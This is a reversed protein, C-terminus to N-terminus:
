VKSRRRRMLLAGFGFAVLLARSPEPVMVIVLIGHDRFLGTDWRLMADMSLDPLDLHGNDDGNGVLFRNSGSNFGTWDSVGYWDLLNYIDGAVPLFASSGTTPQVQITGGSWTIGDSIEIHDHLTGATISTGFDGFALPTVNSGAYLNPLDNLYADYGPGGMVFNGQNLDSDTFTGSTVQLRTISGAHLTLRGDSGDGIFLTGLAGGANSTGVQTDGPALIGHVELSGRVHGSGSLTGASGVLTLGTGTSGVARTNGVNSVATFVINSGQGVVEWEGSGGRGVQLAGETVTTTGTYDNHVTLTAIGPGSKELNLAGVTLPGSDFRASPEGDRFYADWNADLSQHIKLTGATTSANEIIASSDGLPTYDTATIMGTAANIANGAKATLDATSRRTPDFTPSSFSYLGSTSNGDNTILNGITVSSGGVQLMSLNRMEVVNASSLAQNHGLRLIEIDDRDFNGTGTGTESGITLKGTFASNDGRLHVTFFQDSDNNSTGDEVNEIRVNNSGSLSGTIDFIAFQQHGVLAAELPTSDEFYFRVQDTSVSGVFTSGSGVHIDGTFHITPNRPMYGAAINVQHALDDRVIIDRNITLDINPSDISTTTNGFARNEVRLQVASNDPNENGSTEGLIIRGTQEFFVGNNTQLGVFGDRIDLDGTWTHTPRYFRLNGNGTKVLDGDGYIGGGNANLLFEGNAASGADAFGGNQVHINLTGVINLTGDLTPNRQTTGRLTVSDTATEGFQFWEALRFQGDRSGDGFRSALELIVNNKLITGDAWGDTTGFPTISANENPQGQIDVVLPDIGNGLVTLGTYTHNLGALDQTAAAATREGFQIRGAGTYTVGGSFPNGGTISAITNPASSIVNKFVLESGADAVSITANSGGVTINQTITNAASTVGAGIATFNLTGGNVSWNGSGLRAVDDFALTASGTVYTTGSYTNNGTLTTSGVGTFIVNQSGTIDGAITVPASAYQHFILDAGATTLGVGAGIVTGGAHNNTILIGGESLSLNGSTLSSTPTDFRLSATNSGASASAQVDTHVGAGFTDVGYGTFAIIKGTADTAAWDTATPTGTLSTGFTAYSGLRSNPTAGTFNITGGAVSQLHLSAGANRGILGSVYMTASGIAAIGNGGAHLTLNGFEELGTGTSADMLLLGGGMILAANVGVRRNANVAYNELNLIGGLVHVNEVSSDGASSGQLNVQGGGIKTLHSNVLSGGDVFNVKMTVKGGQAAYLRLNDDYAVTQRNSQTFLVGGTGTGFIVEGSLNEGGLISNGTTNGRGYNDMGTANQPDYTEVGVEWSSLNFTSGANALFFSLNAAGEGDASMTSRGGMKFGVMPDLPNSNAALAAADTYFNGTGNYRLIGRKLYIAGAADHAQNLQVTSENNTAVVEMRLLQNRNAATIPGTVAGSAGDSIRGRIDFIGASGTYTSFLRPDTQDIGAAVASGGYINGALTTLGTFNGYIRPTFNRQYGGTGGSADINNLIINGGFYAGEELQLVSNNTAIDHVFIDIGDMRAGYGPSFSGTGTIHIETAAGLSQDHRAYLTGQNIFVNGTNYNPATLFLGQAGTKVLNTANTISSAFWLYTNDGDTVRYANSADATNYHAWISAVNFHAEQNNFNVRGGQIASRIDANRNTDLAAGAWNQVALNATVIMGSNITLEAADDIVLTTYNGRGTAAGNIYSESQFTLSNVAQSSGLTLISNRRDTLEGAGIGTDSTVGTIKLNQDATVGQTELRISETVATNPHAVVKYESDKLPRVFHQGLVNTDVTVLRNATYDENFLNGTGAANSWNPRVGGFFGSVVPKNGDLGSGSGIMSPAVNVRVVARDNIPAGSLTPNFGADAFETGADLSRLQVSTGPQRVIEDFHWGAYDGPLRPNGGVLDAGLDFEIAVQGANQVSLTGVKEFGSFVGGGAEMRLRSQGSILIPLNDPLRDRFEDFSTGAAGLGIYTNRTATLSTLGSLRSAGYFRLSSDANLIAGTWEPNNGYFRLEGGGKRIINGTGFLDGGGNNLYINSANAQHVFLDGELKIQGALSYTRATSVTRISGGGQYGQGRITLWEFLTADSTAALQLTGNAGLITGDVYSRNTGLVAEGSSGATNIRVTGDNIWTIGGYTHQSNARQTGDPAGRIIVTGGGSIILDGIDPNRDSAPQFDSGLHNATYGNAANIHSYESTIYGDITLEKGALVDLTGGNAGLFITRAGNLQVDEKVRLTGGDFHLNGSNFIAWVGAMNGTPAAKTTVYIGSSLGSGGNTIALNSVQNTGNTSFTGAVGTLATSGQFFSLASNNLNNGGNDSGIDARVLQIISGSITGLNSENSIEVVGGNFYHDGTLTNSATLATTGTGSHVFNVKDSGNDTLIAGLTFTGSSNWNHVMLDRSTGAASLNGDYGSTLQGEILANAGGNSTPILISGSDIVLSQGDLTLDTAASYRLTNVSVGSTFLVDNSVNVNNGPVFSADSVGATYASYATIAGSAGNNAFNEIVGPSTGYVAWPLLGTNTIGTALFNINSTGPGEEIFGLTGGASKAFTATAAGLTLNFTRGTPSSLALTSDGNLVRLNGGLTFNRNAATEGQVTLDGGGFLVQAATSGYRDNGLMSGDSPRPAWVAEGGMFNWREVSSGGIGNATFVVKGPGSVTAISNVGTGNDALRANVQLTGGRVQTFRLDRDGGQNEYLFEYNLAGDISGIYATGADYEGGVSLTGDRNNNYVYVRNAWNLVQDPQTLMVHSHYTGTGAGDAGLVFRTFYENNVIRSNATDTLFGSGDPATSPDYLLRFYGQRADVRGTANWQQFVNVNLEEHGTMQFRLAHNADWVNASDGWRHVLKDLPGTATDRFQGLLNITASEAISTTILFPDNYADSDSIAEHNGHYINGYLSLTGNNRATLTTTLGQIGGAADAPEVIVDGRWVGHTAGENRLGVQSSALTKIRLDIGQVDIGSELYFNGVGSVVVERGPAGAGLADHHRVVLGGQDSVYINGTISNSTELYLNNGGTKVLGTANLIHSRIFANGGNSIEFWNGTNRDTDQWSLGSNIYGVQGNFNLSGGRINSSMNLAPGEAYSAFNIIGAKITLTASPNLILWDREATPAAQGSSTADFAFTLSNVTTDVDVNRNAYNNRGSVTESAQYRDIMWNSGTVPTSGISYEALTLPRLYGNDNTLLGIGSSRYIIGNAVGEANRQYNYGSGTLTPATFTPVTGGFLGPIVAAQNTGVAGGIATPASGTLQFSVDAGAGGFTKTNNMNWIKLVAGPSLTLSTAGGQFNGGTRTDLVLLNSGQQVQVRGINETNTVTANPEILLNGNRLNTFGNDNIRDNNNAAAEGSPGPRNNWLAMSGWRDLTISNAQNLSGSAGALSLNVYQSELAAVGGARDGGNINFGLFRGTNQQIFIDGDFATQASTIRLERDGRVTFGTGLNGASTNDILGRLETVGPQDYQGTASNYSGSGGSIDFKNGNGVADPAIGGAVLNFTVGTGLVQDFTQGVGTNGERQFVGNSLNVTFNDHVDVIHGLTAATYVGLSLRADAVANGANASASTNPSRSDSGRSGLTPDVGDYANRNYSVNFVLGSLDNGWSSGTVVGGILPGGNNEFRLEGEHVNIAAGTKNLIDANRIVFDTNGMKTFDFGGLDLVAQIDTNGAANLHRILDTRSVGGVTADGNLVLHSFNATGATNLLAGLGNPGSGAIRFIETDDAQINLDRDGLNVRGGVNVVTENGVGLAGVAGNNTDYRLEGSNVVVQGLFSNAAGRLIVFNAGAASIDDITMLVNGVTGGSINGALVLGQDNTADNVSIELLDNLVMASNITDNGGDGVKNLKASGSSVDFTLTGGSITFSQGGSSDGINMTGIVVNSGPVAGDITITRNATINNILNAVDDIGGTPGTTLGPVVSGTWNAPTSWNGNNNLNWSGTVPTQASGACTLFGSILPLLFAVHLRDSLRRKPLHSSM